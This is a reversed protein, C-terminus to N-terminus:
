FTLPANNSPDVHMETQETNVQLVHTRSKNESTMSRSSMRSVSRQQVRSSSSRMWSSELTSSSSITAPEPTSGSRVIQTTSMTRQVFLIVQILYNDVYGCFNLNAGVLHMNNEHALSECAFFVHKRFCITWRIHRKRPLRM